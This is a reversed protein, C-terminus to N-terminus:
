AQTHAPPGPQAPHPTGRLFRRMRELAEVTRDPDRVFTARVWRLGDDRDSFFSTAPALLVGASEVLDAVLADSRPALRATGALVFWGGEPAFVEFGMERLHRVLHDRREQFHERDDPADATRAAAVGEQLPRAAGVTTREHVRRLGATLEPSAVCYGVRWGSMHLSKSLSGVVVARGAARPMGLPSAHARGDYVYGAYVEDTILTLGHEACLDLLGRVETEDFSRGTPNHPTNLLVARTRPTVAARMAALDLRWDPGTLPVPRPVAGALGIVGPYNEYFPEPLLVEDGPDTVTLVADLVGETAGCTVTIEEVPDVTVGRTLRIEAAITRRLELLGEPPAYQNRGSTLAATAAEIAAAPPNGPPIGLAIDIAGVEHALRLLGALEMSGVQAARRSLRAPSPTM